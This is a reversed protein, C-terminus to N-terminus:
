RRPRTRVQPPGDDAVLAQAAPACALLFGRGVDGQRTRVARPAPPRRSIGLGHAGAKPIRMEARAARGGTVAARAAPRPQGRSSARLRRQPQPAAPPQARRLLPPVDSLSGGLIAAGTKSLVNIAGQLAAAPAPPPADASARPRLRGPACRPRPRAGVEAGLSGTKGRGEAELFERSKM